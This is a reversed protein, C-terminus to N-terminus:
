NKTLIEILESKKYKKFFSPNKLVKTTNTNLHLFISFSIRKVVPPSEILFIYIRSTHFLVTGQCM